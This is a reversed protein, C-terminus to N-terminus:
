LSSVDRIGTDLEKSMAYQRLQDRSEKLQASSMNKYWKDPYLKMTVM